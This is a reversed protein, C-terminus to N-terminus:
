RDQQVFWLEGLSIGLSIRVFSEKYLGNDTTGRSGYALGIDIHNQYAVPLSVGASVTFQNLGTGNPQYPLQEFSFGGRYVIKSYDYDSEKMPRYELGASFRQYKRMERSNIRFGSAKSWDQIAYEVLATTNKSLGASVGFVLKAPISTSGGGKTLTDYVASSVRTLFSDTEITTKTDFTLGFHVRELGAVSYDPSILGFTLTSGHDEYSTTYQSTIFDTNGFTLKSDYHTDGFLYHYSVGIRYDWPTNYSASLHLDSLGGRLSMESTMTNLLPNSNDQSKMDFRAVSYPALGILAAIGNAKSIPFAFDFGGLEGYSFYKKENANSSFMGNGTAYAEIKTLEMRSLGAPNAQNLYDPDNFTIGEMSLGMGRTNKVENLLGFGLSSYPSPTQAKVMASAVLLLIIAFKMTKM